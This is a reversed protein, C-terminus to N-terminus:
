GVSEAWCQETDEVAAAFLSFEMHQRKRCSVNIPCFDCKFNCHNTLEFYIKAIKTSNRSM